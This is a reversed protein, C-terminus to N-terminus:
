VEEPFDALLRGLIESVITRIQPSDSSTLQILLETIDYMYESICRSDAIIIERITNLFLYKQAVQSERAQDFVKSLFFQPNGITANGMCISAATKM